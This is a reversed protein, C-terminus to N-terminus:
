CCRPVVTSCVVTAGTITVTIAVSLNETQITPGSICEPTATTLDSTVCVGHLPLGGLSYATHTSETLWLVTNHSTTHLIGFYLNGVHVFIFSTIHYTAPIMQM